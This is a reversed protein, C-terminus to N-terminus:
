GGAADFQAETFECNTGAQQLLADV